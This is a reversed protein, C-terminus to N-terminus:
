RKLHQCRPAGVIVTVGQNSPVANNWSKTVSPAGTFVDVHKGKVKLGRDEAVFCGDHAKGDPGRLGHYDPIYLVTGLKIEDVDVAVSRLPTIAKGNAGRGYPFKAKDLVDFCIKQDTRPCIAACECDRRSFSVTEGTALRGSGQVCLSDHFTEPVKKILKCERNFLDKSASSAAGEQPFDYYTNRFKNVPEGTLEIAPNGAPAPKNTGAPPANPAPEATSAEPLDDGWWIQEREGRVWDSGGCGLLTLAIAVSALVNAKPIRLSFVTGSDESSDIDIDFNHADSVKKVVALGIGVGHSRTTFFADFIHARKSEPIGAGEDSVSMQVDGDDLRALRVVVQAGEESAQMANRVLNWLVQRM